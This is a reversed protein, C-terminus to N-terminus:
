PINNRKKFLQFERQIQAALENAVIREGSLTFHGDKAALGKDAWKLISNEGGMMEYLDWFACNANLAAEKLADRVMPLGPYSRYEGDFSKAMDGVGVVLFSANPMLKRFKAFISNYIKEIFEKKQMNLVHPVSNGGYQFIVLRTDLYQLQLKTFSDDLLLLGDGSHGRIGYNDVQLKNEGDLYLGYFTTSRQGGFHISLRRQIANVPLDLKNLESTRYTGNEYLDGSFVVAGDDGTITIATSGQVKGFLLFAKSFHKDKSLKLTVDAGSFRKTKAPHSISETKVTDSAEAIDASDKVPLLVDTYRYANGSLGYLEGKSLRRSFVNFRILNESAARDYSIPTAIDNLPIFGYGEGGFAAQLKLRLQSSIRDGEIQSDGYHAIRIMRQDSEYVLARFFNDLAYQGGNSPNSFTRADAASLESSGAANGNNGAERSVYSSILSDAKSNETLLPFSFLEAFPKFKLTLPIFSLDVHSGFVSFLLLVSNVLLITKLVRFKL